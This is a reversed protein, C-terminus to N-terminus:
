DWLAPEEPGEGRALEVDGGVYVYNVFILHHLCIAIFIDLGPSFCKLCVLEKRSTPPTNEFKM